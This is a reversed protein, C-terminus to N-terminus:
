ERGLFFSKRNSWESTIELAKFICFISDMYTMTLIWKKLVQSLTEGFSLCPPLLNDKHIVSPAFINKEFYIPLIFFCNSPDIQM